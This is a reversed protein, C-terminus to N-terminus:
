SSAMTGHDGEAESLMRVNEKPPSPTPASLATYGQMLAPLTTHM